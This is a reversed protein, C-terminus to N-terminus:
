FPVEDDDIAEQYIPSKPPTNKSCEVLIGNTPQGRMTTMIVKMRIKKGAWAMADSGYASAIIFANTKNLGLVRASENFSLHLRKKGEQNTGLKVDKITLVGPHDKANTANFFSSSSQYIQNIDM